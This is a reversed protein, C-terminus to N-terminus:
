AEEQDRICVMSKIVPTVTAVIARKPLYVEGELMTYVDVHLDDAHCLTPEFTVPIGEESYSKVEVTVLGTLNKSAAKSLKIPIRGSKRLVFANSVALHSQTCLCDDLDRKLAQKVVADNCVRAEGMAEAWSLMPIAYCGDGHRLTIIRQEFHHKMDTEELINGGHLFNISSTNDLVPIEWEFDLEHIM